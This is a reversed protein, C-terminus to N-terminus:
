PKASRSQHSAQEIRNMVDFLSRPRSRRDASHDPAPRTVPKQNPRPLFRDELPIPDNPQAPATAPPAPVSSEGGFPLHSWPDPNPPGSQQPTPQPRPELELFPDPDPEPRSEAPESEPSWMDFGGGSQEREDPLGNVASTNSPVGSHGFPLSAPQDVADAPEPVSKLPAVADYAPETSEFPTFDVPEDSATSPEQAPAATYSPAEPTSHGWVPPAPPFALTPPVSPPWESNASPMDPDSEHPVPPTPFQEPDLPQPHLQPSPLDSLDYEPPECGCQGAVESATVLQGFQQLGQQQAAAAGAAFGNFWEVTKARGAENRYWFGWYCKPPLTPPCGSGGRCIDVYGARFGEGFHHPYNVCAFDGRAYAWTHLAQKECHLCTVAEDIPDYLHACGSLLLCGVAGALTLRTTSPTAIPDDEM